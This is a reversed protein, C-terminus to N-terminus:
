ESGVAEFVREVYFEQLDRDPFAERPEDYLVRGEHVLTLRDVHEAFRELNHTSVVVGHGADRYEALFQLLRQKTVDDLDGLPEDLLLYAPEKCLALALDLKRSYGGSLEGAIRDAVVDLGLRDLVTETWAEDADTLAGFVALNEAVTLDEYHSPRQFATGLPVEPVDVEGASPSTLGLLMRLLTTKGSGNPGVLCHFTGPEVTLDVGDVALLSGYRKRVGRLEIPPVDDSM